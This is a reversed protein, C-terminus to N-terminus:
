KPFFVRTPRFMPDRGAEMNDLKQEFPVCPDCGPKGCTVHNCRTCFGRVRGSGPIVTFHAQCHCCQFTDFEQDPGEPDEIHIYGDPTKLRGRRPM